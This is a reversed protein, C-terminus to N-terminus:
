EYFSEKIRGWSTDEVNTPGDYGEPFDMDGRIRGDGIYGIWSDINQINRMLSPDFVYEIGNVMSEGADSFIADRLKDELPYLSFELGRWLNLENAVDLRYDVEPTQPFDVRDIIPSHNFEPIRSYDPEEMSGTVAWDLVSQLGDNPSIAGLIEGGTSDIIGAEPDNYYYTIQTTGLEREGQTYFWLVHNEGDFMSTYPSFKWEPFDEKVQEIRERVEDTLVRDPVDVRENFLGKGIRVTEETRKSIKDTVNEVEQSGVNGAFAFAGIASLVYLPKKINM